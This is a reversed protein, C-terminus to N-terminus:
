VHQDDDDDDDNEYVKKVVMNRVMPNIVSSKLTVILLAMLAFFGAVIGFGGATSNILSGIWFALGIFGFVLAMVGILALLVTSVIGAAVDATKRTVRAMGIKIYTDAVDRATDTLNTFATKFSPKAATAKLDEEM